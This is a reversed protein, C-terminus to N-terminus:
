EPPKPQNSPLNIPARDGGFEWGSVLDILRVKRAARRQHQTQVAPVAEDSWTPATVANTEPGEVVAKGKMSKARFQAHAQMQRSVSPRALGHRRQDPVAVEALVNQMFQITSEEVNCVHRHIGWTTSVELPQDLNGLEPYAAIAAQAHGPMEIEPIITIHRKQAYEVVARIEAQTYFGGHPRGDFQPARRNDSLHGSLTEKRWAGIETLRPYRKIEIRWGQDETLHWHFTNLKHLALLDIFRYIFELPMFHRGTDLMAGRWAFRPADEIEVAPILWKKAPVPKPSFITEPLLQRLTQAGYFIGAPSAASLEVCDKTVMLRYGEPGFQEMDAALHFSVLNKANGASKVALEFGLAPALQAAFLQLFDNGTMFSSMRDNLTAAQGIADVM